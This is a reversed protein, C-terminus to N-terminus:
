SGRKFDHRGADFKGWGTRMGNSLCGDSPRTWTLSAGHQDRHVPRPEVNIDISRLQAEVFLTPEDMARCDNHQVATWPEILTVKPGTEAVQTLM